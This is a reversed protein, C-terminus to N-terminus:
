GKTIKVMAAKGGGAGIEEWKRKNLEFRRYSQINNSSLMPLLARPKYTKFSLWVERKHRAFNNIHARSICRNTDLPM